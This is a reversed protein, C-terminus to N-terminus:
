IDDFFIDRGNLKQNVSNIDEGFLLVIRYPEPYSDLLSIDEYCLCICQDICDQMSFCSNEQALGFKITCKVTKIETYTKEDPLLEGCASPCQQEWDEGWVVEPNPSFFFEYHNLGSADSGVERVFVLYLMKDENM